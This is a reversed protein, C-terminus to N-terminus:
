AVREADLWVLGVIRAKGDEGTAVRIRAGAQQLAEVYRRATRTSVGLYTGIEDWTWPRTSVALLRALKLLRVISRYRTM